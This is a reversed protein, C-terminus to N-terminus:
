IKQKELKFIRNGILGSKNIATILEQYTGTLSKDKLITTYM